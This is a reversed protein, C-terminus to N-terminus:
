GQRRRAPQESGRSRIKKCYTITAAEKLGGPFFIGLWM